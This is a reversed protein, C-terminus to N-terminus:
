LHKFIKRYFYGNFKIIYIWMKELNNDLMLQFNIDSLIKSDINFLPYIIKARAWFMNEEPYDIIDSIVNIESNIRKLIM